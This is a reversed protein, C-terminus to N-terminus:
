KKKESYGYGYGCRYWVRVGYGPKMPPSTEKSAPKSSKRESLPLNRKISVVKVWEYAPYSKNYPNEVGLM